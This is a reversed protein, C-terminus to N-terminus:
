NDSCEENPCGKKARCCRIAKDLVSLCISENNNTWNMCSEYQANGFRWCEGNPDCDDTVSNAQVLPSAALAVLSLVIISFLKKM